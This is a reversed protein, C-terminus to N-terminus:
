FNIKSREEDLHKYNEDYDKQEEESLFLRYTYPHDLERNRKIKEDLKREKEDVEENKIYVFYLMVMLPIFYIVLPIWSYKM